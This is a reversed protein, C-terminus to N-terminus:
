EAVLLEDIRANLAEQDAAHVYVDGERDSPIRWVLGGAPNITAAGGQGLEEFVTTPGDIAYVLTPADWNGDMPEGCDFLNEYVVRM